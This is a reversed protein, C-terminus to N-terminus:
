FLDVVLMVDQREVLVKLPKLKGNAVRVTKRCCPFNGTPDVLEEIWVGVIFELTQPECGTGVDSRSLLQMHRVNGDVKVAIEVANAERPGWSCRDVRQIRN